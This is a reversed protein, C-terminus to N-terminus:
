FSCCKACQKGTLIWNYESLSVEQLKPKELQLYDRKTGFIRKGSLQSFMHQEDLFVNLLLCFEKLSCLLNVISVINSSGRKEWMLSERVFKWNKEWKSAHLSKACLKHEEGIFDNPLLTYKRLTYVWNEIRFVSSFWRAELMLPKRLFACHKEIWKFPSNQLFKSKRV